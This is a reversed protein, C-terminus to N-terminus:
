ANNLDVSPLGFMYFLRRFDSYKHHQHQNMESSSESGLGLEVISSNASTGHNLVIYKARLFNVLMDSTTKMNCNVHHLKTENHKKERGLVGLLKQNQQLKKCIVHWHASSCIDFAKNRVAM